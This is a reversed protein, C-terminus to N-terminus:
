LLPQTQRKATYRRYILGFSFGVLAGLIAGALVDVPYHVGVYVQAYCILAAWFIVLFWIWRRKRAFAMGLFLAIAFHDSAHASPFSLGTGCPVRNVVTPEFQANNCPRVRKVYAKVMRVCVLDATGASAALLIILM